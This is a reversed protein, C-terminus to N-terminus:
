NKSAEYELGIATSYYLDTLAQEREEGLGVFPLLNVVYKQIGVDENILVQNLLIATLDVMGYKTMLMFEMAELEDPNNEKLMDFMKYPHNGKIFYYREVATPFTNLTRGDYSSIRCTEQDHTSMSFMQERTAKHLRSSQFCLNTNDYGVHINCTVSAGFAPCYKSSQYEFTSGYQAKYLKEIRPYLKLYQERLHTIMTYQFNITELM